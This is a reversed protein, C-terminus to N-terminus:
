GPLDPAPLGEWGEFLPHEDTATAFLADTLQQQRGAALPVAAAGNASVAGGARDGLPELARSDVPAAPGTPALAVGVPGASGTGGPSALLPAVGPVARGVGAPGPGGGGPAFGSSIGLCNSFESTNGLTDTATASIFGGPPVNFLVTSFNTLGWVDTYVTLSGAFQEGQGFGSPDCVSNVFFELTFTANPSSSLSGSVFLLGNFAGAWSLQPASQYLNGFNVLRIGLSANAFISNTRIPNFFGSPSILGGDVRVGEGNNYDIVNSIIVNHAGRDDFVGPGNNFVISNSDITNFDASGITVGSSVNGLAAANANTGIFNGQVLNSNSYQILVGTDGNASIVNGGARSSPGGIINGFSYVYIVVGDVRNGLPNSGTVDTGILNGQVVNNNSFSVDIGDYSNGSILNGAGPATGGITNNSAGDSLDRIGGLHIGTHNGLAKTGTVDTGIRNGQILNNSSFGHIWIGYFPNNASILNGQPATTGGILNGVTENMEVGFLNGLSRTGTVDTGIYNGQVVNNSSGPAVVCGANANGSIVNGVGGVGISNNSSHEIRVGYGNGQALTGTVDTGIYDGAVVDGGNQELYIGTGTFRQIVLGQVRSNGAQLDLGQASPGAQSGDLVILPYGAYGSETTGNLVAPVTIPPLPSYPQITQVGGGALTFPIVNPGPGAANSDLIAQRLSGPGSDNSNLVPFTALLQREELVELVPRSFRTRGPRLTRPWRLWSNNLHLAPLRLTM